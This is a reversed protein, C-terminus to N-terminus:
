FTLIEPPLEDGNVTVTPPADMSAEGLVVTTGEDGFVVDVSKPIEKVPAGLPKGPDSWGYTGSLSVISVAILFIRM